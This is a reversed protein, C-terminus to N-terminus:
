FVPPLSFYSEIGGSEPQLFPRGILMLPVYSVFEAPSCPYSACLQYTQPVADNSLTGHSRLPLIQRAIVAGNVNLYEKCFTGQTCSWFQGDTNAATPQAVYLGDLRKVQSDVHINGKVVLTFYPIKEPDTPDYKAPLTIDGTITVNGEVFLTIRREAPLSGGALVLDGNQQYQGNQAVAALDGPFAPLSASEKLQWYDTACYAPANSNLYGSVGGPPIDMNAFSAKAGFGILSEPDDAILGLSLAGFEALSGLPPSGRPTGFARIGGAYDYGRTIPSAYSNDSPCSGANKFAGGTQVDGRGVQFYPRTRPTDTGPEGPDGPNNPDGCTGNDWGYVPMSVPETKLLFQIWFRGTYDQRIPLSVNVNVNPGQEILSSEPPIGGVYFLGPEVIPKFNYGDPNNTEFEEATRNNFSITYQLEETQGPEIDAISPGVCIEETGQLCDVVDLPDGFTDNFPGNVSYYYGGQNPDNSPNWSGNDPYNAVQDAPSFGQVFLRLQYNRTPFMMRPGSDGFPKGIEKFINIPFSFGTNFKDNPNYNPVGKPLVYTYENFPNAPDTINWVQIAVPVNSIRSPQALGGYTTKASVNVNQVTLYRCEELVELYPTSPIVPPPNGPAPKTTLKAQCQPGALAMNGVGSRYMKYTITKTAGFSSPATEYGLGSSDNFVFTVTGNKPVPNNTVLSLSKYNVANANNNIYRALQITPSASPDWPAGGMNKVTVSVQVQQNKDLGTVSAPSVTCAPREVKM